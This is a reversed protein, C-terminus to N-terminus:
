YLDRNMSRLGPLEPLEFQKTLCPTWGPRMLRLHLRSQKLERLKFKFNEAKLPPFNADYDIKISDESPSIKKETKPKWVQQSLAVRKYFKDNKTVSKKVLENKVKINDNKLSKKEVVIPTTGKVDVKKQQTKVTETKPKVNTCKRAIHGVQNCRFCTRTDVVRSTGESQAQSARKEFFEENSKSFIEKEEDALSSSSNM